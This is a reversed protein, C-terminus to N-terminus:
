SRRKIKEKKFTEEANGKLRGQLIDAFTIKGDKNLDPFGKKKDKM